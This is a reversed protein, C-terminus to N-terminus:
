LGDCKNFCATLAASATVWDTGNNIASNFTAQCNEKCSFGGSGTDTGEDVSKHQIGIGAQLSLATSALAIGLVQFLRKPTLNFM